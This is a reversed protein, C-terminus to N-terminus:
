REPDQVPAAPFVQEKIDQKKLYEFGDLGMSLERKVKKLSVNKERKSTVRYYVM